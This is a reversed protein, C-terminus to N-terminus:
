GLSASSLDFVLYSVLRKGFLFFVTKLYLFLRLVRLLFTFSKFSMIFFRLGSSLTRFIFFYSIIESEDTEFKSSDESSSNIDNLL